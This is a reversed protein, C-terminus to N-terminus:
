PLPGPGDRYLPNTGEFFTASKPRNSSQSITKRGIVAADKSGVNPM